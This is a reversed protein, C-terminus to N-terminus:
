INTFHVKKFWYKKNDNRFRGILGSLLRNKDVEVAKLPRVNVGISLPYFFKIFDMNGYSFLRFPNNERLGFNFTEAAHATKGM